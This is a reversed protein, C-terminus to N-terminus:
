NDNLIGNGNRPESQLDKSGAGKGNEGMVGQERANKHKSGKLKKRHKRKM